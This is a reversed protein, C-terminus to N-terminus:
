IISMTIDDLCFLLLMAVLFESLPTVDHQLLSSQPIQLARLAM